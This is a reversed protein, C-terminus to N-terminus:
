GASGVARPVEGRLVVGNAPVAVPQAATVIAAPRGDLRGLRDDLDALKRWEDRLDASLWLVAAVGLLFIGVLGGGVVYPMQEASYATGSVGVWGNVMAAVAVVLAALAAARDWESRLITLIVKGM